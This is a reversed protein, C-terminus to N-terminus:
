PLGLWLKLMKPYNPTGLGTAPDWGPATSFGDTGCGPNSGNTIDNLVSPNKYLVPNIFGVPGKGVALREDIIRNIIAAFIPTSASTGGSLGSEGANYVAINDGNAAVDPYGRGSRNYLGGNQGLADGAKYYPYPPNHDKFYKSVADAQYDPIPYINSFGGGSAYSYIGNPDYVASEPDSVTQGPYVKTAGVNTIYPCSNPFAPSFISGNGLCGNEVGATGPPGAVGNDGSAFLVSVGQLGLKLFELCQRQQYSAPLQNEQMGYSVSIVNTPKFVGCMLRGHYGGEDGDPYVPDLSPDNGCEGYACYTCYSGDLADLFTNLFGTTNQAWNQDDTQYLTTTQPYIIPYALEFDLDSEGGANEVPVPAKAGDIFAPIPHTGKPINKAYQKFFLDLDEQAYYDGEEFIGLSNNPHAAARTSPIKYLARICDPTIAQDCSTTNLGKAGHKQVPRQRRAFRKSKRASVRRRNIGTVKGSYPNLNVGPHVYDIHKQVAAPVHYEECAITKKGTQRNHYEYYTTNFLSEIERSTAHFVLWGRNQTQAVRNASIGGETLWAQVERVTEQSPAFKAAVEDASWFNGYNSSSPNAVDMLMEHAEGLSSQTLGIRVVHQDSPSVRASKVWNASTVERREHVVSTAASLASLGLLLGNVFPLHSLPRM